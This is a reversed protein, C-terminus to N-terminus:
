LLLLLLLLLLALLCHWCVVRSMGEWTSALKILVRDRALGAAEYLGILRRARVLNGEVDFSLRADVQPPPAGVSPCAPLHLTPPCRPSTLHLCASSTISVAFRDGGVGQM